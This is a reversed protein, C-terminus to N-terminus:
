GKPQNPSYLITKDIRQLQGDKVYRDGRESLHEIMAQRLEQLQKKYRKNDAQNILENPDKVMDFLEEDGTTFRYVYKIKGDTLACWYNDKNYCTAHELDIYRRWTKDGTYYNKLPAGDIHLSDTSINAAQLFTPLIDRIEVPRTDKKGSIGDQKNFKVIYPVKVSGEYPYTKRWSHHDGLMDGHDSTFLIVSNDYMGNAKLADIIEGIKEDIHTVAAYYHMRSNKAYEEGFNGYPADSAVKKADKLLCQKEPVWQGVVPAPMDEICYMDLFRQPPDYPSHPRAFSVKLFLPKDTSATPYNTIIDKACNATWNTPHLREELKYVGAGHDNWGIGTKDANQTPAVTEFWQRYDSKFYDSEIRGSEDLLLTQFGHGNRQPHWHMKGIGVTHYGAEALMRPLENQYKVAGKGYGLMGHHWPSLGTLLATRAPTSSPTSSYGNTFLVGDAALRDLNPTKIIPNNMCGMADARHQDTMILIIHTKEIAKNEAINNNTAMGNLSSCTACSLTFLTRKM